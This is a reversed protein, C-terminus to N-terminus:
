PAASESGRRMPQEYDDFIREYWATSEELGGPRSRAHWLSEHDEIISGMDAALRIRATARPSGDREARSVIAKDAAHEAVRLTLELEDRVLAHLGGAFAEFRERLEALRNRVHQWDDLTSEHVPDTLRRHLETYLANTNRLSLKSSLGADADGLEALWAGVTLSPDDFVHLSVARSDSGGEQGCWMARAGDAIGMLSVPWQQRHGQDGWDCILTAGAEAGRAARQINTRRNGTRGTISLWSSTGPCAWARDPRLFGFSSEREYGWVLAAGPFDTQEERQAMDGWFLVDKSHERAISEVSRLHALYVAWRSRDSVAAKSRGQGVDFAEDCGINV